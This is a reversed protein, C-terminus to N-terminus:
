GFEILGFLQIRFREKPPQVGERARFVWRNLSDSWIKEFGYDQWPTLNVISSSDSGSSTDSDSLDAEEEEEEENEEEGITIWWEYSENYYYHRWPDINVVLHSAFLRGLEEPPVSRLVRALKAVDMNSFRHPRHGNEIFGYPCNTPPRRLERCFRRHPPFRPDLSAREELKSVADTEHFAYVHYNDNFEDPEDKYFACQGEWLFTNALFILQDLSFGHTSFIVDRARSALTPVTSPNTFCYVVDPDHDCLM